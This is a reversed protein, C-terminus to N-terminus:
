CDRHLTRRLSLISLSGEPTLYLGKEGSEWFGLTKAQDSDREREGKREREGCM